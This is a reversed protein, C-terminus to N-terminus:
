NDSCVLQINSLLIQLTVAFYKCIPSFPTNNFLYADRSGGTFLLYALALLISIGFAVMNKTKSSWKTQNAIAALIPSLVTVAALLLEPLGLEIM